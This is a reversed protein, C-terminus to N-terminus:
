RQHNSGNSGFCGASSAVVTPTFLSCPPPQEPQLLAHRLQLSDTAQREVSSTARRLEPPANPEAGHSRSPQVVATRACRCWTNWCWRCCWIVCCTPPARSFETTTTATATTCHHCPPHCPPHGVRGRYLRAGAPQLQGAMQLWDQMAQEWLEPMDLVAQKKQKKTKTKAITHHQTNHTTHIRLM